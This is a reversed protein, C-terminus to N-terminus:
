PATHLVVVRTVQDPVVIALNPSWTDFARLDIPDAIWRSGVRDCVDIKGLLDIPTRVRLGRYYEELQDRMPGPIKATYTKRHSDIVLEERELAGAANYTFTVSGTWRTDPTGEYSFGRYGGALNVRALRDGDRVYDASVEVVHGCRNAAHYRAIERKVRQQADYEYSKQVRQGGVVRDERDLLWRGPAVSRGVYELVEGSDEALVRALMGDRHILQLTSRDARFGALLDGDYTWGEKKRAEQIALQRSRSYKPAAGEHCSLNEAAAPQGSIFYGTRVAAASNACSRAASVPDYPGRWCHPCWGAGSTLKAGCFPCLIHTEQDAAESRLSASRKEAAQRDADNRAVSLFQQLGQAAGAYDGLAELALARNYTAAPDDSRKLTAQEFLAAANAYQGGDFALKAQNFLGIYSETEEQRRDSELLWNLHIQLARVQDREAGDPYLARYTDIKAQADALRGMRLLVVALNHLVGPHNPVISEAKAFQEYASQLDGAVFFRAGFTAAEIFADEIEASLKPAEGEPVVQVVIENQALLPLAALLLVIAALLKAMM